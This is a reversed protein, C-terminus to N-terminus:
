RFSDLESLKSSEPASSDRLARAREIEQRLLRAREMPQKIYHIYEVALHHAPKRGSLLKRLSSMSQYAREEKLRRKEYRSVMQEIEAIEEEKKAIYAELFPVVDAPKHPMRLRDENTIIM